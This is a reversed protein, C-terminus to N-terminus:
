VRSSGEDEIDIEDSEETPGPLAEDTSLAGGRHLTPSPNPYAETARALWEAGMDEPEIGDYTDGRTELEGTLDSSLELLEGREPDAMEAGWIEAMAEDRLPPEARAPLPLDDRGPSSLAEGEASALTLGRAELPERADSAEQRAKGARHALGFALVAVAGVGLGILSMEYIRKKM